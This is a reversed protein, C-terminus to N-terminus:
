MLHRRRRHVPDFAIGFAIEVVHGVLGARHRDAGRHRIGEGETPQVGHQGHLAGASRLMVAATTLGSALKVTTTSGSSTWANLTARPRGAEGVGGGVKAM